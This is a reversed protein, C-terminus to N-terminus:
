KRLAGKLRALLGGWRPDDHLPALDTDAAVHTADSWGLDIAKGLQEFAATRLRAEEAPDTPRAPAKPGDHGASALALICALNYHAGALVASLRSEPEFVSRPASATVGADAVARLARELLPRATAYDGREVASTATDLDAAWDPAAHEPHMAHAIGSAQLKGLLDVATRRYPWDAPAVALTQRLDAITGDLDRKGQRALARNYYALVNEPALRIAETFDAIALDPDGKVQWASGRNVYAADCRPDLRLAETQDAIAGELDGKAQRASGRNVFAAADQPNVRIAEKFDAIAGDLDRRSQRLVGRNYYATTHLPDLRIAESFDTIAEDVQGNDQLAFGRNCHVVALKPDLRLAERFDALAGRLDGARHRSLGRASYALANTPDLRLAETQDAIAGKWDHLLERANGRNYYAAAYGPNIRVVEGYEVIAAELDGKDRWAHARNFRASACRPDIRVVETYDAIAGELDGNRGRLNGRELLARAFRPRIALAKELYLKQSDPVILSLVWACEENSDHELGALLSAAAEKGRGSVFAEMGEALRLADATEEASGRWEIDGASFLFEALAQERWRAATDTAKTKAEPDSHGYLADFSRELYVRGLSRRAAKGRETGLLEIARKLDKEAESLDQSQAEIRGRTEYSWGYNPDKALAEDCAKLAEARKEHYRELPIGPSYLVAKGERWLSEARSLMAEMERERATLSVTQKALKEARRSEDRAERAFFAYIGLGAALACAGTVPLLVRRHKVAKRLLRAAASLPRAAIPDGGLFRGLDAALAAATPYRRRRDREMCKLCITELERDVRPNLQRPPPPDHRAVKLVIELPTSGEYPPRGTLMEYLIAGLQYVDSAADVERVRGQALEPSMYAPTGLIAGTRTGGAEGEVDMLKALGFDMIKLRGTGDRIVNAPKLDRHVVGAEHAVQLAEALERTIAAATAAAKAGGAQRGFEVPDKLLKDLTRGEVYEMAFYTKGEAVGIDHVSVIGPHKLRAAAQAERHFRELAEPSADIGALLVKVAFHTKLLPHYAKYVIGMGGRGLEQVLEYKGLTRPTSASESTAPRRPPQETSGASQTTDAIGFATPTSDAAHAAGPLCPGPLLVTTGVSPPAEGAPGEPTREAASSM